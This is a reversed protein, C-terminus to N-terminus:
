FNFIKYLGTEIKFIVETEFDYLEETTNVLDNFYIRTFNQQDRNILGNMLSKFYDSFIHSDENDTVINTEENIRFLLKSYM